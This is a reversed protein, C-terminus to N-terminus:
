QHHCYGYGLLLTMTGGLTPLVLTLDRFAQSLWMGLVGLHGLALPLFAQCPPGQM